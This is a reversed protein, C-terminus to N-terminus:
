QYKRQNIVAILEQLDDTEVGQRTLRGAIGPVTLDETDLLRDIRDALPDTGDEPM